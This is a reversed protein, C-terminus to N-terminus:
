GEPPGSPAGARARLWWPSGKLCAAMLRAFRDPHLHHNAPDPHRFEERAFGTQPDLADTASDVFPVGHEECWRLLRANYTGTIAAREALSATVPRRANAVAGVPGSHDITPPPVAAVMLHPRGSALLGELFSMYNHLSLDCQEQVRLGYRESRYWILFGCDVEGLLFLMWRDKPLRDIV